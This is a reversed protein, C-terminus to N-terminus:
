PNKRDSNGNPKIIEEKQERSILERCAYVGRLCLLDGERRLVHKQSLIRGAIMQEGLYTRGFDSLEAELAEQPLEGTAVTHLIVTETVVRVPLFFGGPLSLYREEYIRDCSTDSIGSGKYFNIRNKGFILSFKKHVEQKEGKQLASALSVAEIKRETDAFVEGEAREARISLGCDTYGSVLIEGATVAQGPKCQASGRTVTCSVVVGDRLAVLSSVGTTEPEPDVKAREEVSIVALCGKTNIGAWELQPLRELLANKMKESRVERGSAGFGIGCNVAEELIRRTPVASNGQVQVLLIRRPLILAAALLLLLGGVLVPRHLLGLFRWYLGIKQVPEWSDGRKEALARVKKLDRANVTFFVTVADERVTDSLAIGARILRRFLGEPDASVLKLRVTGGLPEWIRM